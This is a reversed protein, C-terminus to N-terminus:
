PPFGRQRRQMARWGRPFGRQRRQMAKLNPIKDVADHVLVVGGLM